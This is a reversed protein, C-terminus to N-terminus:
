DDGDGTGGACEAETEEWQELGVWPDSVHDPDGPAREVGGVVAPDLHLVPPAVDAIGGAELLREPTGVHDDV